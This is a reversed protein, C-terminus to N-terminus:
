RIRQGDFGEAEYSLYASHRAAVVDLIV